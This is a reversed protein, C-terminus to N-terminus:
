SSHSEPGSGAARCLCNSGPLFSPGQRGEGGRPQEGLAVPRAQRLMGAADGDIEVIKRGLLPLRGQELLQLLEGKYGQGGQANGVSQPGKGRNIWSRCGGLLVRRRPAGNDIGNTLM